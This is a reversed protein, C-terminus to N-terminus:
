TPRPPGTALRAARRRGVVLVWEGRPEGAAAWTVAEGLTGRWLEEHVKTLERGVALRREPGCARALDALTRLVRHPAEYLM